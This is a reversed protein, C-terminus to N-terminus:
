GGTQFNITPNGVGQQGFSGFILDRFDNAQQRGVQQNQFLQDGLAGLAGLQQNQGALGVGFEDLALQRGFGRNQQFIQNQLNSFDLGFQGAGLSGQGLAQNAALNAGFNTNAANLAIQNEAQTINAAGGLQAQLAGFETLGSGAFGTAGQRERLGRIANQTRVDQTDRAQSMLRNQVDQTIPGGSSALGSLGQLSQNLFNPQAAGPQAVGGAQPAGGPQGGGAGPAVVNGTAGGANVDFVTVLGPMGEFPNPSGGGGQQLAAPGAQPAGGGQQQAPSFAAQPAGGGVVRGQTDAGARQSVGGDGGGRISPINPRQPLTVGGGGVGRAARQDLPVTSGTGGVRVAPIVRGETDVGARPSVGGNGGERITEPQGPPVFRSAPDERVPGQEPNSIRNLIDRIIPNQADIDGIVDVTGDGPTTPNIPFPQPTGPPNTPNFVDPPTTPGPPTTLDPIGGGGGLTGDRLQQFFGLLGEGFQSGPAAPETFGFGFPNTQQNFQTGPSIAPQQVTQFPGLGGTGAQIGQGGLVSPDLGQGAFGSLLDSASALGPAQQNRLAGLNNLAQQGPDANILNLAQEGFLNTFQGLPGGGAQQQGLAAAQQNMFAALRPDQRFGIANQLQQLSTIGALAQSGIGFIDQLGGTIAEFEGAM